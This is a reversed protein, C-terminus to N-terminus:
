CHAIISPRDPHTPHVQIHHLGASALHTRVVHLARDLENCERSLHAVFVQQLTSGAVEALLEAATENSLHGQRSLIRQKLHWPRSSSRVLDTDHNTELIILNCNRLHERALTTVMGLDTAIGVRATGRTLVFGVPDYADHPLQFPHLHIDGISFPSGTSFLNWPLHKTNRSNRATEGNAYLPTAYKKHLVRIGATHDSHEHTICIADLDAPHRDIAQLRLKIQRASLGADILLATEPSEVYIANGSSGSALICIRLNHTM